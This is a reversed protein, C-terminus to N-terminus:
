AELAPCDYPLRNRDMRILSKWRPPLSERKVVASSRPAITGGYPADWGQVFRM